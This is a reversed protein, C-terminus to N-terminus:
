SNGAPPAAGAFLDVCLAHWDSDNLHDGFAPLLEGGDQAVIGLAPEMCATIQSRTAALWSKAAAPTLLNRVSKSLKLPRIRLLWGTGAAVRQTVGPDRLLDHNVAIVEGAVPMSQPLRRGRQSVLTWAAQGQELRTGPRPLEISALQGAFNAALETTGVSALSRGHVSVWTHGPHYYLDGSQEIARAATAVRERKSGIYWQALLVVTLMLFLLFFTM